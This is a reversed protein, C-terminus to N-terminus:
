CTLIHTQNGCEEDILMLGPLDVLHGIDDIDTGDLEEEVMVVKESPNDKEEIFVHNEKFIFSSCRM